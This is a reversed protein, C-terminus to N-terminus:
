CSFYCYIFQTVQPPAHRPTTSLIVGGYAPEKTFALYNRLASAYSTANAHVLVGAKNFM